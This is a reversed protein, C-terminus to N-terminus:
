NVRWAPHLWVFRSVLKAHRFVWASYDNHTTYLDVDGKKYGWLAGGFGANHAAVGFRPIDAAAVGNRRGYDQALKMRKMTYQLSDEFRPCMGPDAATKGAVTPKWTGEAVAPMEALAAENHVRSIQFCGGDQETPPAEEWVGNVLIAGGNINRLHTERLGLAIIHKGAIGDPEGEDAVKYTREFRYNGFQRIFYSVNNYTLDPLAM